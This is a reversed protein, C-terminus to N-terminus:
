EIEHKHKIIDIKVPAHVIPLRSKLAEVPINCTYCFFKRSKTCKTCPSRGEITNLVQNDAIRLNVFPYKRCNNSEIPHTM